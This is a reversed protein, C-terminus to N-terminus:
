KSKFRYIEFILYKPFLFMVALEAVSCTGMSLGISVCEAVFTCGLLLRDQYILGIHATKEQPTHRFM